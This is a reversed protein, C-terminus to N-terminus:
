FGLCNLPCFFPMYCPLSAENLKITYAWLYQNDTSFNVELVKNDIKQQAFILNVTATVLLIGTIVIKRIRM